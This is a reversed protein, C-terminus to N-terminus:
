STSAGGPDGSWPLAFDQCLANRLALRRAGKLDGTARRARAMVEGVKLGATHLEVVPRPGLYGTTVSMTRPRDSVHAPVMHLGAARLGAADVLGSIHVLRLVPNLQAVEATTVAGQAGVLQEESEHEAFVVADAQRLLERVRSDGLTEGRWADTVMSGRDNQCLQAVAAGAAQLAVVVHQGFVGGGVVLVRSRRVELGSELLLKVALTGVYPFLDLDPHTEDTGLVLVDNEECAGRDLDEPRWEWTAWMLPVVASRKMLRVLRQDIPRVFGLNTVIDAESVAARDFVVSLRSLCGLNKAVQEVALGAEEKTGYRSDKAVAYVRESGALLAVIPTWRFHGTAAETFVVFGGLDLGFREICERAIRAERM